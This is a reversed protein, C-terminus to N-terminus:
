QPCAEWAKLVVDAGFAMEGTTGTVMNFNTVKKIVLTVNGLGPVDVQGINWEDIDGAEIDSFDGEILFTAPGLSIPTITIVDGRADRIKGQIAATAAPFSPIPPTNQVEDPVGTLVGTIKVNKIKCGDPPEPQGAYVFTVALVLSVALFISAMMFTFGFKKRM